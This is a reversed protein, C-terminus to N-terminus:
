SQGKDKGIADPLRFTPLPYRSADPVPLTEVLAGITVASVDKAIIRGLLSAGEELVIEALIIPVEDNFSPHNPRHILSFSVIRGRGSAVVAVLDRSGTYPCIPRPYFYVPGGSRSRQLLIKGERWASLFAANDEDQVPQPYSSHENM